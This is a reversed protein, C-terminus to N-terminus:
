VGEEKQVQVEIVAANKAMLEGIRFDGHTGAAIRIDSVRIGDGAKETGKARVRVEIRRAVPHPVFVVEGEQTISVVPIEKLSVETVWGMPATGNQNSVAAGTVVLRDLTLSEAEFTPLEVSLTYEVTVNEASAETRSRWYWIGGLILTLVLSPILFDM